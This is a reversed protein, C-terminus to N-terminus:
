KKVEKKNPEEAQRIMALSGDAERIVAYEGEPLAYMTRLMEVQEREAEQVEQFARELEMKQQVLMYFVKAQGNSLKQKEM